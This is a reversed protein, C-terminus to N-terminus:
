LENRIIQYKNKSMRWFYELLLLNNQFRLNGGRLPKIYNKEDFLFIQKRKGLFKDYNRKKIRLFDSM